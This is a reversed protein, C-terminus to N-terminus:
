YYFNVLVAEFDNESLLEECFGGNKVAKIYEGYRWGLYKLNLSFILLVVWTELSEKQKKHSYHWFSKHISEDKITSSVLLEFYLFYKWLNFYSFTM